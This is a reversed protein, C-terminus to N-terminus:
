PSAPVVVSLSRVAMLEGTATDTLRLYVVFVQAETTSPACDHGAHVIFQLATGPVGAASIVGSEGEMRGEIVSSESRTSARSSSPRRTSRRRIAIESTAWDVVVPYGVADM